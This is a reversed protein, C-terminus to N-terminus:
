KLLENIEYNSHNGNYCKGCDRCSLGGCNIKIGHEKVYEPTYVTFVNDIFSYQRYFKVMPKNLFYSSGIIKLNEPKKLDYKEIAEAIIWPNKTWLAVKVAPNYSAFNFYNVVQIDNQIDGFAEERVYGSPSYLKPIDEEPIIGNCLIATNDILRERLGKFRKQMTLSYCHSCVMNKNNKRIECYHNCLPSTSVSILDEMKDNHDTTFHLGYKAKAQKITLM